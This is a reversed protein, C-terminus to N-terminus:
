NRKRGNNIERYIRRRGNKAEGERDEEKGEEERRGKEQKM